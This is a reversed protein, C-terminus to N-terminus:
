LMWIRFCTHVLTESAGARGEIEPARLPLPLFPITTSTGESGLWLSRDRLQSVDTVPPLLDGVAVTGWCQQPISHPYTNHSHASHPHTSHSFAKHTQKSHKKHITEYILLSPLCAMNQLSSLSIHPVSTRGYPYETFSPMHHSCLEVVQTDAWLGTVDRVRCLGKKM